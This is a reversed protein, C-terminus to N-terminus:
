PTVGVAPNVSKLATELQAMMQLDSDLYGLAQATVLASQVAKLPEGPSIQELDQLAQELNATANYTEAVMLVYDAKYDSRLSDLTTNSVGAPEIVWGYVLGAALGVVIALIFGIWRGHNL